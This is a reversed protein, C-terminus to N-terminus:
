SHTWEPSNYVAVTGGNWVGTNLDLRFGDVDTLASTYMGYGTFLRGNDQMLSWEVHPLDDADIWIYVEGSASANLNLDDALHISATSGNLSPTLTSGNNYLQNSFYNNSSILSGNNYFQLLWNATQSGSADKFVLVWAKLGNIAEQQLDVTAGSLSQPSVILQPGAAATGIVREDTIDANTIETTSPTLLVQAVPIKGSPISPASPSAAESGTVVEVAGTIADIIVRDIRPNTTPATITSTNQLAVETLTTGRFLQGAKLFVQMNPTSAAHPAFQWSLRKDVSANIEAQAVWQPGTQSSRDPIEPQGVTM